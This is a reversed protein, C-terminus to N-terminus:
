LALKKKKELIGHVKVGGNLPGFGNKEGETTTEGFNFKYNWSFAGIFQSVKTAEDSAVRRVFSLLSHFTRM